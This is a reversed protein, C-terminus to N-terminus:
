PKVFKLIFQDTRGRISADSSSATHPDGPNHLADSSGALKFGAAPVETKVTEPDIRHLTRTDDAGHGAAAAHDVVIYMGGPKLAEFVRQNFSTMGAAGNLANHMDHYNNSTWVVDVPQPLGLARETFSLPLVTVNGYHADAAIANVATANSGALAYVHGGAGAVPSLLRTFYGGGPILEAIKSGPEISAFALTEAPKRNADRAADAAPRAKDAVAAAVAAPIDAALCPASLCVALATAIMM